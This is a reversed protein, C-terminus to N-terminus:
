NTLAILAQDDLLIPTYAFIRHAISVPMGALGHLDISQISPVLADSAQVLLDGACAMGVDDPSLRFAFKVKEGTEVSLLATADVQAQGAVRLNDPLSWADVSQGASFPDNPDHRVLPM